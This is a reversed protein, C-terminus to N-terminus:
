RWCFFFIKLNFLLRNIYCSLFSHSLFIHLYHYLIFFFFSWKNIRIELNKSILLSFLIVSDINVFSWSFHRSHEILHLYISFFFSLSILSFINDFLYNFFFLFVLQGTSFSSLHSNFIIWFCNVSKRSKESVHGSWM